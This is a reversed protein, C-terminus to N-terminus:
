KTPEAICPRALHETSLFRSILLTAKENNPLFTNYVCIYVHVLGNEALWSTIFTDNILKYKTSFLSIMERMRVINVFCSHYIM